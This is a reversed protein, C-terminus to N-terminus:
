GAVLREKKNREGSEADQIHSHLEQVELELKKRQQLVDEEAAKATTLREESQLKWGAVVEEMLRRRAVEERRWVEEQKGWMKAPKWLINETRSCWTKSFITWSLAYM